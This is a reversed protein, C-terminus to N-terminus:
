SAGPQVALQTGLPEQGASGLTPVPYVVRRLVGAELYNKRPLLNLCITDECVTPATLVRSINGGGIEKLKELRAQILLTM